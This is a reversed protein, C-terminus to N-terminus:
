KLTRPKKFLLAWIYIPQYADSATSFPRCSQRQFLSGSAFSLPLSEPTYKLALYQVTPYHTKATKIPLRHLGQQWKKAEELPSKIPPRDQLLSLSLSLATNWQGENNKIKMYISTSLVSREQPLTSPLHRVEYMFQHVKIILPRPGLRDSEPPHELTPWLVAPAM